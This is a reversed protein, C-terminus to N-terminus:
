QKENIIRKIERKLIKGTSTKPMQPWFEFKSPVKFNALHQRCFKKLDPETAACGERLKVVGVPIEGHIEDKKGVVAAEEVCEHRYLVEEVERPYLNMGNVIILDKKRDMIFIYGDEDMRGIDGTFLWGNKIVEATEVPKNLYGKMVNDGKVAIEGTENTKVPKGKEDIIAAMVRPIPPGVSGAKRVGDFPNVSVVPSTESLGYGELLPLGFKKEFKNLVEGSLPAAGSVCVRIKILWLAIKPIRKGALVNFVPPIAVFMTIRDFVLSKIINSFPQVSKMIRVYCAKYVPILVCVTFTFAHFMPLFVIFRDKEMIKIAECSAEVNSFLNKNTLMAGKPFGTTGSTYIIVATDDEGAANGPDPGNIGVESFLIHEKEIRGTSILREVSPVLKLDMDKLLVDFDPSTIFIKAKCDNLIYNVEEARLFTNLPVIEAGLCIVAFYATVFEVSNNLLMAVRDGKKVGLSKLGRAFMLVNDYTGKFTIKEKDKHMFVRKPAKLSAERLMDILTM